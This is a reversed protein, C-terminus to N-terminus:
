SKETKENKKSADTDEANDEPVVEAQLEAILLDIEEDTGLMGRRRLAEKLRARTVSGKEPALLIGAVAGVALGSLFLALGKM